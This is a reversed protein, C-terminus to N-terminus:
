LTNEISIFCMNKDNTKHPHLGVFFSTTKLSGKAGGLGGGFISGGFGGGFIRGGLGGGFKIGLM